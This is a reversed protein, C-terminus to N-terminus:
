RARVDVDQRNMWWRIRPSGARLFPSLCLLFLFLRESALPCFEGTPRASTVNFSATTGRVTSPHVSGRTLLRYKCAAAVDIEARAHARRDAYIILSVVYFSTKNMLQRARVGQCCAFNKIRRSIQGDVPLLRTPRRPSARYEDPVSRRLRKTSTKRSEGYIETSAIPRNSSPAM